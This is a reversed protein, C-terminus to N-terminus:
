KLWLNYAVQKLSKLILYDLLIMPHIHCTALAPIPCRMHLCTQTQSPWPATALLRAAAYTQSFHDNPPSVSTLKTAMDGGLNALEASM